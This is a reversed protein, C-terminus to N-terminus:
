NCSDADAEGLNLRCITDAFLLEWVDRKVTGGDLGNLESSLSGLESRLESPSILLEAAARTLNVNKEFENFSVIVPDGRFNGVLEDPTIEEVADLFDQMDDDIIERMDEVPIYLAEILDIDENSFDNENEEVFALIEDDKPKMGADHCSICSIGNRVNRDIQLNDVVIQTPAVDLREGTVEAVMYGHMGNDLTWIVESGDTEFGIPDLFINKVNGSSAFDYSIWFAGNGPLDHREMIRNANSVGSDLFGARVVDEDAINEAIDLGLEDTLEFLDEPIDLLDHYLPPQTGANIFWEASQVFVDTETDQQIDEAEDSDMVYAYLNQQVMIDWKDDGNEDEEDWEYDRLDIRFVINNDDVPEPAVLSTGLSTANVAKSLAFRAVLLDEECAGANAADALSFYRIFEPDDQDNLDDEIIELLAEEDILEDEELVRCDEIVDGDISGACEKDIWEGILAIEEDSPFKNYTSPPMTKQATRYYFRSDEKSGPVIRGTEIMFNANLINGFVMEDREHCDGCYEDVIALAATDIESCSGTSSPIDQFSEADNTATDDETIGGPDGATPDVFGPDVGGTGAVAPTGGTGSTFGTSGGTGTAAPQEDGAGLDVGGGCGTTIGAALLLCTALRPRVWSPMTSEKEICTSM